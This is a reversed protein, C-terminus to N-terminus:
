ECFGSQCPAHADDLNFDEEFFMAGQRGGHATESWRAVDQITCCKVRGKKTNVEISRQELPVTSRSFWSSYDQLRGASRNYACVIKEWTEYIVLVWPRRRLTRRVDAKNSMICLRCGVRKWGQLYLPNIRLEWKHHGEWIDSLSLKLLPRRVPCKRMGVGYEVLLSREVSESGRVGSHLLVENGGSLLSGILKETPRMKLYDTCFRAKASPFRCKWIALALFVPFMWYKDVWEGSAKLYIVAKCGYRQVYADLFRIQDYVEDYENETDCFAFVLSERPYGSEHIAWGVLYTSDKGGSLGFLNLKM